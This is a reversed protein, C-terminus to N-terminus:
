SCSPGPQFGALTFPKKPLMAISNHIFHSLICQKHASLLLLPMPRLKKLSKGVKKKLQSMMEEFKV